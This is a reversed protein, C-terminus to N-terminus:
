QPASQQPTQGRFASQPPQSASVAGTDDGEETRQVCGAAGGALALALLLAAAGFVRHCLGKM